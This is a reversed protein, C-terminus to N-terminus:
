ISIEELNVEIIKIIGKSIIILILIEYALNMVAFVLELMPSYIHLASSFLLFIVDSILAITLLVTPLIIGTRLEKIQTLLIMWSSLSRYYDKSKRDEIYKKRDEDNAIEFERVLGHAGAAILSTIITQIRSQLSQIKFIRYLGVLAIIAANSQLLASYFYLTTNETFFSEM